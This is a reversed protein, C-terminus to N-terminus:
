RFAPLVKEAFLEASEELKALPYGAPAFMCFGEVPALDLKSKFHAIAEDPTLVKVQGSTRFAEFDMADHPRWDKDAQWEAYTNLQYYFHPAVEHM